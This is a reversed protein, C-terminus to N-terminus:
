PSPLPGVGEMSLSYGSLGLIEAAESGAYVQGFKISFVRPLLMPRAWDYRVGEETQHVEPETDLWATIEDARLETAAQIDYLTCTYMMIQPLRAEGVLLLYQRDNAGHVLISLRQDPAMQEMLRVIEGLPASQENTADLWGFARAADAVESRPRPMGCIQQFALVRDDGVEAAAHAPALFLFIFGLFMTRM